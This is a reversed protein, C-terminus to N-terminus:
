IQCRAIRRRTHAEIIQLDAWKKLLAEGISEGRVPYGHYPTMGEPVPFKAIREGNKGLKVHGNDIIAFLCKHETCFFENEDAYVFV